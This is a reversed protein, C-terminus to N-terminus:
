DIKIRNKKAYQYFIIGTFILAAGFLEKANLIENLIFFGFVAAFIPELSFMLVVTITSVKKQAWVSAFYCFLTGIFGLYLISLIDATNMVVSYEGKFIFAIFTILSAGVFQFTILVLVNYQKVFNGALIIHIAATFATILTILDGINIETNPDYTLFFLGIFVTFIAGWEKYAFKHKYFLFMIVPVLVVAIGTIFASHGTSTYKLGIVQSSYVIGLFIGLIMGRKISKFEKFYYRHKIGLYLLMVFAALSTRLCVILYENVNVVTQKVFVFTSGWVLSVFFLLIINRDIYRNM